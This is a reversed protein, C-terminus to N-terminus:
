ISVGAMELATNMATRKLLDSDGFWASSLRTDQTRGRMHDTYFTVGNVAGWLTGKASTLTSGPSTLTADQIDAAMRSLQATKPDLVTEGMLRDMFNLWDSHDINVHSLADAAANTKAVQQSAMGMMVRAEEKRADTFKASHKLRFQPVGDGLAISLTNWCVVRVQTPKAITRLSGDHSTAFMMYGRLEDNGALTATSGGNLRALAWVKNGGELAGVTEMTAHGAECYERFIEVVEANQVIQYRDTSVQFVHDNDSRVIARYGALPEKLMKTADTAPNTLDGRMAIARRQVQWNMGAKVLMEAGTATEEVNVGLGHWPTAGKYSIMNNVINHAM